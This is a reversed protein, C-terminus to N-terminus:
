GNGGRGQRRRSVLSEIDDLFSEATPDWTFRERVHDAGNRGFTGRLDADDHLKRVADALEEPSEPTIAVGAEADTFQEAPDGEVGMIVPLEAAMAEYTKSPLATEVLDLGKLHVLSADSVELFHSVAEISYAGPFVLNDLGPTEANARLEPYERGNGVVVFVVDDYRPQRGLEATADLVVSLGHVPGVTGVSSVVFRESLDHEAILDPPATSGDMEYFGSEVGNTHIM